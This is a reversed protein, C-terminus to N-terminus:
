YEMRMGLRGQMPLAAKKRGSVKQSKGTTEKFFSVQPLCPVGDSLFGRIASVASVMSM